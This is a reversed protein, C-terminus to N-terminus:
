YDLFADSYQRTYSDVNDNSVRMDKDWREFTRLKRFSDLIMALILLLGTGPMVNFYYERLKARSARVAKHIDKKWQTRKKVLAKLVSEIHDFMDNYITIVRHLTISQRKSM